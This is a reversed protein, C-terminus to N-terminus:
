ERKSRSRTIKKTPPTLSWVALKTTACNSNKSLSFGSLSMDSYMLEGPPETLAPMAMKSVMFKMLGSTEVKHMPMAALM